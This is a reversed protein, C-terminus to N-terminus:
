ESRKQIIMMTIMGMRKEISDMSLFSLFVILSQRSRFLIRITCTAVTM